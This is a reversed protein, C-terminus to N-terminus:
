RDFLISKLTGWISFQYRCSEYRLFPEGSWKKKFFTVGENIGLGLNIFTKGQKGAEVILQHLLLDNAGPVVRARSKFNFMYFAYNRAGFEVVDFAVLDGRQDRVGLIFSTPSASVYDAIHGFIFATGADVSHTGLFGEVLERHEGTFARGEEITLERAARRLMNRTKQHIQLTSLRIRYYSDPNSRLGTRGSLDIQPAILALSRPKFNRITAELTREMQAHDFPSDLPYGIFILHGKKHYFLSDKELFPEVESIALVYEPLHEPIYAHERIFQEDAPRIM